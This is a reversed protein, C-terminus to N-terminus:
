ILSRGMTEVLEITRNEIERAKQVGVKRLGLTLRVFDLLHRDLSLKHTYYGNGGNEQPGFEQRMKEVVKHILELLGKSGIIEKGGKELAVVVLFTCARPDLRVRLFPYRSQLVELTPAGGSERESISELIPRAWGLLRFLPNYIKSSYQFSDLGRVLGVWFEKAEKSLREFAKAQPCLERACKLGYDVRFRMEKGDNQAPHLLCGVLRYAPDLYGLAWCSYGTIPVIAESDRDFSATNERLMREVARRYQIHEYGQPRIPPCCAFCSRISDPHCLSPCSIEIDRCM